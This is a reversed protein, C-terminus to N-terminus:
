RKRKAKAPIAAPACAPNSPVVKKQSPPQSALARAWAYPSNRLFSAAVTSFPEEVDLLERLGTLADNKEQQLVPNPIGEDNQKKWARLYKEVLGTCKQLMRQRGETLPQFRSLGFCEDTVTVRLHEWANVGERPRMAGTDDYDVLIVDDLKRPDLLVPVENRWSAQKNGSAVPSERHLPFFNRKDERNMVQACLLLNEEDFALWWYGERKVGPLKLLLANGAETSDKDTLEVVKAKPRFHEVDLRAGYNAADTYWCKNGFHDIFEKGLAKWVKNKSKIYTIRGGAKKGLLVKTADAARTKWDASPKFTNIEIHRM